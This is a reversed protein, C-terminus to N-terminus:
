GDPEILSICHICIFLGWFNSWDSILIFKRKRLKEEDKCLSQFEDDRLM